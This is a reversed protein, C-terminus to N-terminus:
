QDANGDGGEVGALADLYDAVSLHLRCCMHDSDDVFLKGTQNHSIEPRGCYGDHRQVYWPFSRFFVCDSCADGAGTVVSPSEIIGDSPSM